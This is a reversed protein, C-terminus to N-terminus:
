TLYILFNNKFQSLRLFTSKPAFESNFTIPFSENLLSDISHMEIGFFTVFILSPQHGNAGFKILTFIECSFLFKLIM